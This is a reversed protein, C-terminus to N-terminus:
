LPGNTCEPIWVGHYPLPIRQELGHHPVGGIAPTTLIALVWVNVHQMSASHHLLTGQM